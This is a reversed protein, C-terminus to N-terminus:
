VIFRPLISARGTVLKVKWWEMSRLIMSMNKDVFVSIFYYTLFMMKNSSFSRGMNRLPTFIRPCKTKLQPSLSVSCLHQSSGINIRDNEKPRSKFTWYDAILNHFDVKGPNRWPQDWGGAKWHCAGCGWEQLFNDDYEVDNNDDNDRRPSITMM